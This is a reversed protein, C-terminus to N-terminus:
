QQTPLFKAAKAETLLTDALKTLDRYVSQRARLDETQEAIRQALRVSEMRGELMNAFARLHPALEKNRARAQWYFHLDYLESIQRNVASFEGGRRLAKGVVPLESPEQRTSGPRLGLMQELGAVTDSAAGGGVGRIVHDVRRPSVKDPFARGLTTALWSTYPGSQEGPRLDVQARPVIPRDFFDMHNRAQEWAIKGVVPLDFPNVTAFVHGFAANVAEPNDRHAADLLAEPIVAFANQWEPPRPIQYVNGNGDPVNWYLYRERWPLARYWDEDKNQWWSYLAPVTFMSFGYLVAQAPREQLTRLFGRTGQINANFFPIAQSWLKAYSGGASFDTTVRKAAITLALAQEPTLPQGPSWGLEKSRLRLEAIRPVAETFSLLERLTEIPATVRKFVKGHFLGKAERRAFGVDGGLPQGAMVGLRDFLDRYASPQRTLGSKVVDGLAGFYEAVRRLPNAGATSQMLFTQLDRAPNTFLSFSARLGTTGLRFTRAPVGLLLDAVLPLRAPQIGELAGFLDPRVFYWKTEGNVKRAVIPDSGKPSDAGTYYELLTDAPINTTDVGMGELQQRLKEVNVQEKVQARPVEEIMGGMGPQQALHFISEMVQDRHARSIVQEAALLTQVDLEKVPLSSGRMRRLAGGVGQNEGPRSQNADLVRALPVYDRSGNRIRKVLEANAPSSAGLYDLVGDWWEYYRSAALQFDPTELTQRLYQADALSIGPNKDQGWREIARRSWLYSWFDAARRNRALVQDARLGKTVPALAERLSRGGTRNGAPDIMGEDAMYALIAGAQGRRATAIQFPDEDARLARGAVAKFRKGLAEYPAFQEVFGERSAYKGLEQRLRALKSDAQGTQARMRERAGMGRWVDIEARAQRMAAAVEPFAPLVTGELWATANPARKAIDDTTLYDSVLEAWGEGAYGANPRTKGYLAKGLAVLERGAAPPIGRVKGVKTTAYLADALAHAVEHATTPLNLRDWMRIVRSPTTYVGAYRKSLRASRIPSADAIGRAVDVIASLRAEIKAVTTFGPVLREMTVVMRKSPVATATGAPLAPLGFQGQAELPSGAAGRPTPASFLDGGGLLDGQGIDGVSGTIPKAQREDLKERDAKTKAQAEERALRANQDAVSEPADLVGPAPLPSRQAGLRKARAPARDRWVYNDGERTYGRPISVRDGHIEIVRAPITKRDDLANQLVTAQDRRWQTEEQVAATAKAQGAKIAREEQLFAARAAEDPVFERGASYDSEWRDRERKTWAQVRENLKSEAENWRALEMTAESVVQPRMERRGLQEPFTDPPLIEVEGSRAKAGESNTGAEPALDEAGLFDTSADAGSEPRLLSGKDIHIVETGDPYIRQVGFKPGDKVEVFALEGTDEDFHLQSVEFRNGQVEFTDGELLEGVDVREVKGADQKPRQGEIVKKEFNSAQRGAETANQEEAHFQKRWGIRGAAADNIAQGLQDPQGADGKYIGAERLQTAAVDAPTGGETTFLKRAVGRPKFNPNAERILRLNIKGLTGQIEDILDWPRGQDARPTKRLPRPKSTLREEREAPMESGTRENSGTITEAASRGARSVSDAPAPPTLPPEAALKAKANEVSREVGELQAKSLRRGAINRGSKLIANGEAISNLIEQRRAPDTEVEPAPAPRKSALEQEIKANQEDTLKQRQANKEQLSRLADIVTQERSEPKFYDETLGLQQRVKALVDPWAWGQQEARARIRNLMELEGAQSPRRTAVDAAADAGFHAAAHLKFVDPAAERAVLNALDTPLDPIAGGKTAEAAKQEVRRGMGVVDIGEAPVNETAGQDTAFPDLPRGPEANPIRFEDRPVAAARGPPQEKPLTRARRVLEPPLVFESRPQLSHKRAGPVNVVRYAELDAEPVDVYVIRGDPDHAARAYPKAVDPDPTFWRGRFEPPEFTARDIEGSRGWSPPGPKTEGRYLRVMKPAEFGPGVEGLPAERRFLPGDGERQAQDPLTAELAIEDASQRLAEIVEPNNVADRLAYTVRDQPTMRQQTESPLSRRFGPVDLALFATNAVLNRLIAEKRQQPDLAAYEPLRLGEMFVQVAGQSGLVEVAKQTATAQPSMLGRQILQRNVGVALSKGAQAVAPIAAGMVGAQFAAQSDGTEGYTQAAMPGGFAAMPPVGYASLAMSAGLVPASQGVDQLGQAVPGAPDLSTLGTVKRVDEALLNGATSFVKGAERLPQRLMLSAAEPVAAAWEAATGGTLPQIVERDVARAADFGVEHAANIVGEVQGSFGSRAASDANNVQMQRFAEVNRAFGPDRDVTQPYHKAVLLSLDADSVQGAQPYHKRFLSLIANSM